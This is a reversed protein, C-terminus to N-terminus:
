STSWRWGSKIGDEIIIGISEIDKRMNDASKYEKKDRLEQRLAIYNSM